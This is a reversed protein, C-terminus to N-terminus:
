QANKMASPLMAPDEEILKEISRDDIPKAAATAVPQAKLGTQDSLWERWQAQSGNFTNQDVAGPIGPVRGDSRYQWFHGNATATACPRIINRRACGSRITRRAGSRLIAQYFDVSSYIIPKKGYHREMEELM